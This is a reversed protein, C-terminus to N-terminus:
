RNPTGCGSIWIAILRLLLVRRVSRDLAIRKAPAIATLAASGSRRGLADRQFACTISAAMKFPVGTATITTVNPTVFSVIGPWSARSEHKKPLQAYALSQWRTHFEITQTWSWRCRSITYAILLNNGGEVLWVMADHVNLAILRSKMTDFDKERLQTAWAPFFSFALTHPLAFEIVDQGAASHGRLM